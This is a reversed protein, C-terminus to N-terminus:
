FLPIHLGVATITDDVTKNNQKHQDKGYFYVRVHAKIKGHDMYIRIYTRTFGHPDLYHSASSYRYAGFGALTVHMNPLTDGPWVALMLRGYGHNNKLLITQTKKDWVQGTKIEPNETKLAKIAKHSLNDVWTRTYSASGFAIGMSFMLFVGLTIQKINNM